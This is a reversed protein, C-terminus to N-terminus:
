RFVKYTLSFNDRRKEYSKTHKNVVATIKDVVSGDVGQDATLYLKYFLWFWVASRTAYKMQLLADPNQVFDIVDDTWIKKYQANFGTYNSRGTLQKLGRGRFSWGDGSEISGNGLDKNGQNSYIRNAIDKQKAPSSKSRGLVKAEDPHKRFYSFLKLAEPKYNFSEEYILTPGTEQMVQAFFHAKRLPTDLKYKQINGNLEEVIQQLQQRKTKIAAPWMKQMHDLTILTANRADIKCLPNGQSDSCEQSAVGQPSDQNSGKDGKRTPSNSKPTVDPFVEEETGDPHPHSETEIQIQDIVASFHQEAISADGLHLKAVLDYVKQTTSYVAFWIFEWPSVVAAIDGKDSTVFMYEGGEPDILKCKLGDIALGRGNLVHVIVRIKSQTM